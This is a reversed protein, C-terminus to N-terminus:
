TVAGCTPCKGLRKLEKVIKKETGKIALSYHLIDLEHSEIEEIVYQTRELKEESFVIKDQLKQLESVDIMTMSDLQKHLADVKNLKPMIYDYGNQAEDIKRKREVLEELDKLCEDSMFQSQKEELEEIGEILESIFEYLGEYEIIQREYLELKRLFKDAEKIRELDSINTQYEKLDNNLATINVNNIKIDSNTKKLVKDMVELGAVENLIKSRQGPSKDILFYIEHQQQINAESINLASSIDEPVASRLAKLVSGHDEYNIEYENKSKSKRREVLCDELEIIVETEETNHKRFDDGSPRNLVVWRIGRIISSKGHDSTGWFVNMGKSLKVFTNEHSQFNFVRVSELPM